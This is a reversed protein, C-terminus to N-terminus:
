ESSSEQSEVLRDEVHRVGPVSEALSAITVRDEASDISGRLTVVGDTTTVEVQRARVSVTDDTAIRRRVEDTARRDTASEAVAADKTCRQEAAVTTGLVASVMGCLLAVTLSTRRITRVSMDFLSLL